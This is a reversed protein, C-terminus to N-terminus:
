AANGGDTAQVIRDYADPFMERVVEIPIRRHSGKRSSVRRHPVTGEELRYELQRRTLGVLVALETISVDAPIM